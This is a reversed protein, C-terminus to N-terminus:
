AVVCLNMVAFTQRRVSFPSFFVSMAADSCNVVAFHPQTFTEDFVLLRVCTHPQVPQLVGWNALDFRALSCLLTALRDEGFLWVKDWFLWFFFLYCNQPMYVYFM